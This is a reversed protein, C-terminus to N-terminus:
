GRSVRSGEAVRRGEPASKWNGNGLRVFVNSSTSRQMASDRRAAADRTYVKGACLFSILLLGHIGREALGNEVPFVRQEEFLLEALFFAHHAIGRARVRLVLQHRTHDFGIAMLAELRFHQALHARETEETGGQVTVAARAYVM